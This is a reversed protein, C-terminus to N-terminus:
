VEFGDPFIGSEQSGERGKAREKIKLVRALGTARNGLAALAGDIRAGPSGKDPSIRVRFISSYISTHKHRVLHMM